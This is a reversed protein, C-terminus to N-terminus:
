CGKRAGSSAIGGNAELDAQVEPPMYTADHKALIERAHFIGKEDLRGRAIVGQGARFLDPLIGHYIIKLEHDNCDGIRFMIKLSENSRQLSGPEVIGGVRIGDQGVPVQDAAIESLAYYHNLNKGMAYCFLAVTCLAPVIIAVVLLLRKKQAPTM